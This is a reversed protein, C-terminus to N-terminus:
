LISNQGVSDMYGHMATMITNLDELSGKIQFDRDLWGSSERYQIDLGRYKLGEIVNRVRSFHLFGVTYSITHPTITKDANM